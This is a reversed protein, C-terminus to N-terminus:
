ASPLDLADLLRVWKAGISNKPELTKPKYSAFLLESMKGRERGKRNEATETEQHRKRGDEMRGGSDARNVSRRIRGKGTSIAM